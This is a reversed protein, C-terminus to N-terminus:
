KKLEDIRAAFYAKKQPFKWILKKLVEVAKEKKGQKLLIEVLTESIINEGFMASSETLDTQEESSEKPKAKGISPQTKIFQDIIEIQEKQKPDEPKLKKKTTKIEEILGDSPELSKKVKKEPRKEEKEPKESSKLVRDATTEFELKLKKLLTVDKEIEDYLEDGELQSIFEKPNSNEKEFPAIEVTSTSEVQIPKVITRDITPMSMISKLISRDTSYIAGLHLYENRSEMELDNSARATMSQIVQSYPYEKQLKLLENVEEETLATYNSLLQYFHNKEM